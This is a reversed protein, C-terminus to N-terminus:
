EVAIRVRDSAGQVDSCVIQFTGRQLPWFMPAGPRSAGVYRDNIFGHLPTGGAARPILVNLLQRGLHHRVAALGLLGMVLLLSSALPLAWHRADWAWANAAVLSVVAVLAWVAATRLSLRALPWM